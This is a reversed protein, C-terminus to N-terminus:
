WRRPISSGLELSRSTVISDKIRGRFVLFEPFGYYFVERRRLESIMPVVVGVGGGGVDRKIGMYRWM